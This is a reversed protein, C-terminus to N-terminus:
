KLFESIKKVIVKNGEVKTIIVESNKEIPESNESKASWVVGNIKVSGLEDETIQTILKYKEGVFLDANTKEDSGKFLFKKAIKRVFVILLTSLIIFIVLQIEWSINWDFASLILSILGAVAFWISTLSLTIFEIILALAVVILWIWIMDM